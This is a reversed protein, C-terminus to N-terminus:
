ATTAVSHQIPGALESLAVSQLLAHMVGTDHLVHITILLAVKSASCNKPIGSWHTGECTLSRRESFSDNCGYLLKDGVRQIWGHRPPPLDPCGTATPTMDNFLRQKTM